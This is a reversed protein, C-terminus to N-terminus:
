GGISKVLQWRNGNALREYRVDDFSQRIIFLGMGHEPLSLPDPAAIEDPMTFANRASDTVTIHITTRDYQFDFDIHGEAGAYAHRVINVLLEQIGLVVGTRTEVPLAELQTELRGTFKSVAELTANITTHTDM